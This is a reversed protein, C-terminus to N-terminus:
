TPSHIWEDIQPPTIRSKMAHHNMLKPIDAQATNGGGFVAPFLGPDVKGGSGPHKHHDLGGSCSTDPLSPSPCYLRDPFLRM